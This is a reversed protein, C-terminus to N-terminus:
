FEKEPMVVPRKFAIVLKKIFDKQGIIKKEIVDEIGEFSEISIEPEAEPLKGEKAFTQNQAKMTEMSGFDNQINKTLEDLDKQMKKQYDLNIQLPDGMKDLQKLIRQNEKLLEQTSVTSMGRGTIAALNDMLTGGMKKQRAIAADIEESTYNSRSGFASNMANDFEDFM